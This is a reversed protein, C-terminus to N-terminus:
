AEESIIDDPNSGLGTCLIIIFTIFLIFVIINNIFAIKEKSMKNLLFIINLIIILLLFAVIIPNMYSPIHSLDFM